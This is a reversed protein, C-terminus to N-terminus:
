LWGLVRYEGGDLRVVVEDEESLGCIWFGVTADGVVM